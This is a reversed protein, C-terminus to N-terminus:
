RCSFISCAEEFYEGDNKEDAFGKVLDRRGARHGAGM